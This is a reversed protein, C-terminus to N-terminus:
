QIMYNFTELLKWLCPIFIPVDVMDNTTYPFCHKELQSVISKNQYRKVSRFNIKSSPKTRNNHHVVRSSHNMASRQRKASRSKDRAVRYAITRGGSSWDDHVEDHDRSCGTVHGCPASSSENRIM